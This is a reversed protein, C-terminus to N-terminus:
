STAHLGELLEPTGNVGGGSRGRATPKAVVQRSAGYGLLAKARKEAYVFREAITKAIM